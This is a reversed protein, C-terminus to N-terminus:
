PAAYTADLDVPYIPRQLREFRFLSLDSTAVGVGACYVIEKAIPQYTPRFQTKSKVILFRQRAPDIGVTQFVGHDYPETRRSSVVITM